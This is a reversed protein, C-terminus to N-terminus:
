RVTWQKEPHRFYRRLFASVQAEFDDPMTEAMWIQGCAACLRETEGGASLGIVAPQHGVRGCDRPVSRLLGEVSDIVQEVCSGSQYQSLSYIGEPLELLCSEYGLDHAYNILYGSGGNNQTLTNNPFTKSLVTMIRDSTTITQQYWGHVDMMLNVGNGRVEWLFQALARAELCALPQSSTYNRASYQVSFDTPFCRNMDIGSGRILKENYLYTTTCRGSGNETWGSYLGDPNMCPLIYVTWDHADPLVSTELWAMLQQATYVLAEGDRPFNDEFGHLAFGMVLVNEGNGYRYAELERGEGSTGYIIREVEPTGAAYANVSLALMLALALVLVRFLTRKM